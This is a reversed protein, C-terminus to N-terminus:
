APRFAVPGRAHLGTGAERAQDPLSMRLPPLPTADASKRSTDMAARKLSLASAKDPAYIRGVVSGMQFLEEHKANTLVEWIPMPSDRPVRSNSNSPTRM